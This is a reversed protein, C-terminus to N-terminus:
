SRSKWLHPWQTYGPIAPFHLIGVHRFTTRSAHRGRPGLCGTLWVIAAQGRAAVRCTIAWRRQEHSGLGEVQLVGALQV